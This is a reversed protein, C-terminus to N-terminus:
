APKEARLLYNVSVDKKDLRYRRTLPNYTLGTMERLVLGADRIWGALESPKIFKDYEHTGAPLLRLIHPPSPSAGAASDKPM